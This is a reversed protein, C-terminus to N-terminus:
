NLENVGQENEGEIPVYIAAPRFMGRVEEKNEEECNVFLEFITAFKSNVAWNDFGGPYLSVTLGVIYAGFSTQRNEYNYGNFSIMEQYERGQSFLEQPFTPCQQLYRLYVGLSRVVANNARRSAARKNEDATGVTGEVLNVRRDFMNILFEIGRIAAATEDPTRIRHIYDVGTLGALLGIFADFASAVTTLISDNLAMLIPDRSLCQFIKRM